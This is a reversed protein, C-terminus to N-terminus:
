RGLQASKDLRYLAVDDRNDGEQPLRKVFQTCRGNKRQKYDLTHGYYALLRYAYSLQPTCEHDDLIKSLNEAIGNKMSQQIADDIERMAATMKM